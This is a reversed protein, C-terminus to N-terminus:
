NGIRILEMASDKLSVELRYLAHLQEFRRGNLQDLKQVFQLDFAFIGNQLSAVIVDSNGHISSVQHLVSQSALVEILDCRYKGRFPRARYLVPVVKRLQQVIQNFVSNDQLEVSSRLLNAPGLELPRLM